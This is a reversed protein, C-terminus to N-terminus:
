PRRRRHILLAAHLCVHCGGIWLWRWTVPLLEMEVASTAVSPALRELLWIFGDMFLEFPVAFIGGPLAVIALPLSLLAFVPAILVNFLWTLPPQVTWAMLLPFLLIWVAVARRFAGKWGSGLPVSLALACAWSLALSISHIWSPILTLTLIGAKLVDIDPRSSPGWRSRGRPMWLGVLARFLPPQAGSLLTFGLAAAARGLRPIRLFSLWQELAILHAGSVVFLHLLATQKLIEMWAPDEVHRGCILSALAPFHASNKPLLTLCSQVNPLLSEASTLPLILGRCLASFTLVFSLFIM